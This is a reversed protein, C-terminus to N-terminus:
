NGLIFGYFVVPGLLVVRAIALTITMSLIVTTSMAVATRRFRSAFVGIAVAAVALVLIVAIAGVLLANLSSSYCSATGPYSAGCLGPAPVVALLIITSVLASASPAVIWGWRNWGSSTDKTSVPSLTSTM